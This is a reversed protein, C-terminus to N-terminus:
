LCSLRFALAWHHQVIKQGDDLLEAIDTLLLGGISTLTNVTELAESNASMCFQTNQSSVYKCYCVSNYEAEASEDSARM